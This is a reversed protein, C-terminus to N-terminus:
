GSRSRLAAPCHQGFPGLREFAGFIVITGFSTMTTSSQTDRHHRQLSWSIQSPQHITSSYHYTPVSNAIHSVAYIYMYVNAMM